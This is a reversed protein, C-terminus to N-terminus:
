RPTLQAAAAAANPSLIPSLPDLSRARRLAVLAPGEKGRGVQVTSLVYWTEWNTSEAETAARAAAAAKSGNDLAQHAFAQQMLPSAAYPQLDEASEAEQLSQRYAGARFAAQSDSVDESAYMPIAILATVAATLALGAAGIAVPRAWRLRGGDARRDRAPEVAAAPRDPFRLIVAAVFLFCVPIVALEWLWDLGAAVAFALASATAAALAQRDRGASLTQRAGVVIVLLILGALLVLGVIGLEGVTEAFLSHADRIFGPIDRNQSWWFVYTGPGIGHLPESEFADVAASWYQWRGNGSASSLRDVQAGPNAPEKFQEWGDAVRDPGGIAFFAAVALASAVALAALAGRRPVLPAAPLRGRRAALGIGAVLLGAILGVGLTIWIMRHGQAVAIDDVIGSQLSPRRDAAWILAAAGISVVALPPVLALRRRSLALVALVGIAAAISGARSLTYYSTLVMLPVFGAALGRVALSRASTALWLVLPLGIAIVGALGNWYNLPYALRSETAPLVDALENAPFWSPELRSLLAIAAIVACGAGIGALVPRLRERGGILLAVAFVGLYSLVRAVEITTREASSTWIVGALTWAAFAALLAFGIWGWRGVASIALAGALCGLVAAWWAAIGLQSYVLEDFGGSEMGLYVVLAAPLLFAVVTAGDPLRSAPSREPEAAREPAPETKTLPVTPREQTAQPDKQM